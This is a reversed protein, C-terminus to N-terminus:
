GGVSPRWREFRKEILRLLETLAVGTAAIIIIGVMVADTQFRAGSVAILHGIGYHAGYMEGVVIGILAHGLGLRLGSLLLPVSSPLAVTMFLQRDSAGFSRAVKVFDANVTRVGTITNVLIPFVAGLFVIAIKSELGIGFWIMILPLLAIRPTAYLASVFPDLIANLRGYWGMLIGLPVGAVIALGFGVLFEYGSVQLHPWISGDAFMGYGAVAIRSPSSTFLPNVWELAVATEWLVLFACMAMAGLLAHENRAWFSKPPALRMEGDAGTRSPTTATDTTM